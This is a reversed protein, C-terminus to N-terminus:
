VNQGRWNFQPSSWPHLHLSARRVPLFLLLPATLALPVGSNRLLNLKKKVSKLTQGYGKHWLCFTQPLFPVQPTLSPDNRQVIPTQPPQTLRCASFAPKLLRACPVM